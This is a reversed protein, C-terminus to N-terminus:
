IEPRYACAPEVLRRVDSGRARWHLRVIGCEESCRPPGVYPKTIAPERLTFCVGDLVHAPRPPVSFALGIRLLARRLLSLIRQLFHQCFLPSACLM